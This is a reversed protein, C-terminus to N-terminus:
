PNKWHYEGTFNIHNWKLPSLYKLYDDPFEIETKVKEIAKELEITNWLIIAAVILNLGSAKYLQSDFSNDHVEGNKNFFIARALANRAEGKNLEQQVKKRLTENEIWQIMYLSREIRGLERLALALKNQKPYTALKKIISSATVYGSQISITLRLIDTWQKKIEHSKIPDGLLDYLQTWQKDKKFSYLNLDHFSRIRPTFKFGLM